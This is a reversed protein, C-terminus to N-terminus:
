FIINVNLNLFFVYVSFEEIKFNDKFILNM